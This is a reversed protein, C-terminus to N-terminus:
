GNELYESVPITDAVVMLRGGTVAATGVTVQLRVDGDGHVVGGAASLAHGCGKALASLALSGGIAAATGAGIQVKFALTASGSSTVADLSVVKLGLVASGRPLLAITHTGVAQADSVEKLDVLFAEHRVYNEQNIGNLRPIQTYVDM